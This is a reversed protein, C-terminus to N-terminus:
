NKSSRCYRAIHGQQNCRWCTLAKFCREARHGPKQCNTCVLKTSTSCVFSTSTTRKEGLSDPITTVYVAMQRATAKENASMWPVVCTQISTPLSNFLRHKVADDSLHLYGALRTLRDCSRLADSPKVTSLTAFETDPDGPKTQRLYEEEIARLASNYTTTGLSFIHTIPHLIDDSICSPLVKLSKEEDLDKETRWADLKLRFVSFSKTDLTLEPKM